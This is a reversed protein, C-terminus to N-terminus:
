VKVKSVLYKIESLHEVILSFVIVSELDQRALLSNPIPGAFSTNVDKEFRELARDLRSQDTMHKERIRIIVGKKDLSYGPEKSTGL